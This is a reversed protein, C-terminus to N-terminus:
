CTIITLHAQAQLPLVNVVSTGVINLTRLQALGALPKIDVLATSGKFSLDVLSPLKSLPSLDISGHKQDVSLLHLKELATAASLQDLVTVKSFKIILTKLHVLGDIFQIHDIQQGILELHELQHCLRIPALEASSLLPLSNNNLSNSTQCAFLSDFAHKVSSCTAVESARLKYANKGCGCAGKCGCTQLLFNGKGHSAHNALDKIVDNNTTRLLDCGEIKIEMMQELIQNLAKAVGSCSAVESARLKLTNQGCNCQSM